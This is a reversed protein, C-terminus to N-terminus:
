LENIGGNELEVVDVGASKLISRSLDFRHEARGESLVPAVVRDIGAQVVLSACRSCPIFPWTYLTLHEDKCKPRAFMLANVEAHIIMAYKTPRDEYQVADDPVGRPFGNYGVSVIRRDGDVIAAGVKTSPDKSWSSIHQALALFRGDWKNITM